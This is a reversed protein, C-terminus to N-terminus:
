EDAKNSITFVYGTGKVAVFRFRIDGQISTNDAEQLNSGQRFGLDSLVAQRKDTADSPFLSEIFVGMTTVMRVSDEKNAPTAIMEISIIQQNKPNLKGSLLISDALNYSFSDSGKNVNQLLVKEQKANPSDNFRDKLKDYTIDIGTGSAATQTIQQAAESSTAQQSQLTIGVTTAIFIFAIAAVGITLYKKRPNKNKPNEAFVSHHCKPCIKEAPSVDANCYKCKMFFMETELSKVLYM